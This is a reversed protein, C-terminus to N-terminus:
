FSAVLRPSPSVKALKPLKKKKGGGPILIDAAIVKSMDGGLNWKYPEGVVIPPLQDLMLIDAPRRDLLDSMVGEFMHGSRSGTMYTVTRWIRAQREDEYDVIMRASEGSYLRNAQIQAARREFTEEGNKYLHFDRRRPPGLNISDEVVRLLGEGRELLPLEEGFPVAEAIHGSVRAKRYLEMVKVAGHTALLHAGFFGDLVKAGIPVEPLSSPSEWYEPSAIREHFSM